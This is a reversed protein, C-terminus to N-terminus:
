IALFYVYRGSACDRFLRVGAGRHARPWGVVGAEVPFGSRDASGEGLLGSLRVSQRGIRVRLQYIVVYFPPLIPGYRTHSRCLPTLLLVYHLDIERPEDFLDAVCWDFSACAKQPGAEFNRREVIPQSSNISSVHIYRCLNVKEACTKRRFLATKRLLNCVATYRGLMKGNMEKTQSGGVPQLVQVAAERELLPRLPYLVARPRRVGQRCRGPSEGGSWRQGRNQPLRWGNGSSVRDDGVSIGGGANISWPVSCSAYPLAALKCTESELTCM